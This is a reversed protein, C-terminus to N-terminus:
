HAIQWNLTQRAIFLYPPLLLGTVPTSFNANWTYWVYQCVRPHQGFGLRECVCLPDPLRPGLNPKFQIKTTEGKAAQEGSFDGISWAAHLLM